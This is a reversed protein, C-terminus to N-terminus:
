TSKDATGMAAAVEDYTFPKNLVGCFGFRRFDLVVPDDPCGSSVFAKVEPDIELLQRIAEQGGMRGPVNLDLIVAAFRRGEANAQRYKAVAERGDCAEAIGYGLHRLTLRALLRISEDDDM